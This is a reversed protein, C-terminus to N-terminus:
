PKGGRGAFWSLWRGPNNGLAQGPVPGLADFQPTSERPEGAAAPYIRVRM